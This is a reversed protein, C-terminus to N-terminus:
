SSKSRTAMIDVAGVKMIAVLAIELQVQIRDCYSWWEAHQFADPDPVTRTSSFVSIEVVAM